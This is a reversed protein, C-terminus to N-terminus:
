KKCCPIADGMTTVIIDDNLFIPFGSQVSLEGFKTLTYLVCYSILILIYNLTVRLHQSQILFHYLPFMSHLGHQVHLVDLIRILSILKGVHCRSM